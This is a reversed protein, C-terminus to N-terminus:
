GEEPSDDENLERMMDDLDEEDMGKTSLCDTCDRAGFICNWYCKPVIYLGDEKRPWQKDPM